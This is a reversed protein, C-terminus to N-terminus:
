WCASTSATRTSSRSVATTATRSTSSARTSRSGTLSSSSRPARIRRSSSARPESARRSSAPLISSSCGTGTSSRPRRLAHRGARLRHRCAGVARWRDQVEAAPEEAAQSRVRRHLHRRSQLDLHGAQPSRLRLYQRQRPNKAMYLPTILQKEGFTSLLRGDQSFTYIKHNIADAVFVRQGDVVVGLPRSLRDNNPGAFSYLFQPAPM